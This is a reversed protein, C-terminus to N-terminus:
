TDSTRPPTIMPTAQSSAIVAANEAQRRSSRLGGTRASWPRSGSCRGRNAGPSAGAEGGPYSGRGSPGADPRDASPGIPGTTRKPRHRTARRYPNRGCAKSKPLGSPASAWKLNASCVHPPGVRLVGPLAGGCQWHQLISKPIPLFPHLRQRERQRWIFFPHCCLVPTRPWFVCAIAGIDTGDRPKCGDAGSDCAPLPRPPHLGASPCRTQM